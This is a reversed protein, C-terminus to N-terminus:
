RSPRRSVITAVLLTTDYNALGRYRSNRLLPRFKNEQLGPRTVAICPLLSVRLPTKVFPRKKFFTLKRYASTGQSINTAWSINKIVATGNVNM